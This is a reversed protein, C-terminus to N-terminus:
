SNAPGAVTSVRDYRTVRVPVEEGQVKLTLEIAEEYDAGQPTDEDLFLRIQRLSGAVVEGSKLEVKTLYGLHETGLKAASVPSYTNM